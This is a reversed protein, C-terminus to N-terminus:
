DAISCTIMPHAPSDADGIVDKSAYQECRDKMVPMVSSMESAGSPTKSEPTPPNVTTRARRSTSGFSDMM